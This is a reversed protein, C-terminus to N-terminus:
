TEFRTKTASAKATAREETSMLLPMGLSRRQAFCAVDSLQDDYDDTTGQRAASWEM